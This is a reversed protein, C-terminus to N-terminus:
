AIVTDSRADLVLEATTRDTILVQVWGGAIASRIATVKRVGGAVAVSRGTAELQDLTIGIVRDDFAGRVPEGAATFFRLGIDGVAGSHGLARLEAESFANGSSALLRSPELAGIGVFAVTLRNFLATTNVV